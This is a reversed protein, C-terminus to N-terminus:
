VVMNGVKVAPLDVGLLAANRLDEGLPKEYNRSGDPNVKYGIRSGVNKESGDPFNDKDDNSVVRWGSAATGPILGTGPQTNVYSVGNYTVVDNAAYAANSDWPTVSQTSLSPTM